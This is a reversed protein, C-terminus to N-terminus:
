PIRSHYTSPRRSAAGASDEYLHRALPVVQRGLTEIAAAITHADSGGWDLKMLFYDRCLLRALEVIRHACEEVSGHILVSALREDENADAFGFKEWLGWSMFTRYYDRAADFTRRSEADGVDVILNRLIPRSAPRQGPPLQADYASAQEQLAPIPQQVSALWVAGRRAIRSVANVSSGGLWMPLPHQIPRSALTVDSVRHVRGSFSVQEGSWLLPLLDLTDLYRPLADAMVGFARRESERWGQALGVIAHGNALIDLTALDEAVVLPNAYPAVVTVGLDLDGSVAALRAAMPISQFYALPAALRHEGLWVGNLGVERAIEVQALRAALEEAPRAPDYNMALLIGFRLTM